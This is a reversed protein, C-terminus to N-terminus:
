KKKAAKWKAWRARQAAAIKARASASMKSKRRGVRAAKVGGLGSLAEIAKETRDLQIKLRSAQKSLQSIIGKTNMSHKYWPDSARDLTTEIVSPEQSRCLSQRELRSPSGTALRLDGAVM